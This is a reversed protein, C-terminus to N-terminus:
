AAQRVLHEIEEAVVRPSYRAIARRRAERGQREIRAPEEVYGRLIAALAGPDNHPFVIGGVDADIMDAVGEPGTALCPREALMAIIVARPAGEMPSPCFVSVDFASLVDAVEATPTPVFHARDGLSLARERLEAETEGEGALILHADDLGAVADVVVDNRKKRNLRSICGVVFADADIGLEERVRRRGEAHFAIEDSSVANPVTHLKGAPVGVENISERAGEAVAMVFAARRAAWLYARRPLGRRFELPVKGWEAWALMPRLSGPLSPVLLQEKKFHVLLVDYPRERALESRLRWLLVPWTAILSPYTSRSLKPGLAVRRAHISTGAALEPQNTLLVTEHGRTALADLMAVAAFEAGGQADSTLVSVIKM